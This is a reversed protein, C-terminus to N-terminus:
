YSNSGLLHTRPMASPSLSRPSRESSALRPETYTLRDEYHSFSRHVPVTTLRKHQHPFQPGSTTVTLALAVGLCDPRPVAGPM